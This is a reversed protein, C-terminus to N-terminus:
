LGCIQSFSRSRKSVQSKKMRKIMLLLLLVDISQKKGQTLHALCLGWLYTGTWIPLIEKKNISSLVRLSCLCTLKMLQKFFVTEIVLKLSKILFLSSWMTGMSRYFHIWTLSLTQWLWIKRCILTRLGKLTQSTLKGSDPRRFIHELCKSINTWATQRINRTKLWPFPLSLHKLRQHQLIMNITLYIRSRFKHRWEQKVVLKHWNHRRAWFKCSLSMFRGGWGVANKRLSRRGKKRSSGRLEWIRRTNRLWLKSLIRKQTLDILSSDNNPEEMFHITKITEWGFWM